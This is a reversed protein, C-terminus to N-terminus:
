SIRIFLSIGDNGYGTNNERPVAVEIDDTRTVVDAGRTVKDRTINLRTTDSCVGFFDSGTANGRAHINARDCRRDGCRMGCLILGGGRRFSSCSLRQSYGAIDHGCGDTNKYAPYMYLRQHRGGPGAQSKMSSADRDPPSRSSGERRLFGQSEKRRTSRPSFLYHVCVLAAAFLRRLTSRLCILRCKEARATPNPQWGSISRGRLPM